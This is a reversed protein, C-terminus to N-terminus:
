AELFLDLEGGLVAEVDDTKVGSRHDTVSTYPDLVYSRLIEDTSVEGAGDADSASVSVTAFSTHRRGESDYPSIRVRRHVGAESRLREYVGAGAVAIFLEGSSKKPYAVRYGKKKAWSSYMGLLDSGWDQGESGPSVRAVSILTEIETETNM